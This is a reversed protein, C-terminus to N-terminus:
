IVRRAGVYRTKYYGTSLSTIKVGDSPNSAHIFNDGGVYIGVHGIATNADNNFLVLDGVQLNNRDVAVGNKIQDKSSRNLTIGFHKYVYQTFGSCDFGKSPSAGGSVYKYGLYQKAYEVVAAGTTGTTTETEPKAEPVPEAKEPTVPKQEVVPSEEQKPETVTPTNELSSGDRSTTEPLKTDSIYKSSVYGVKGKLDIQYWNGSQGTIKVEDNKKLSDLEETDTSPGKRVRLGEASVYGIKSLPTVINTNEPEESKNTDEVPEEPQKTVEPEPEPEPEVDQEPQQEPIQVEAELCLVINKLINKRIWGDEIDTEIRCWNNIIEIVKINGSIKSKEISNILPVAKLTVEQQLTYEKNEEINNIVVPTTEIPQEDPQQEIPQEVPQQEPEPNEVKEDEIEPQTSTETTEEENSKVEDKVDLLSESIYGTIKGQETKVKVKYWGDEQELIEVKDGKDLQDLITSKTNPEKRLRVTESNITGTTAEVKTGAIIFFFIMLVIITSKKLKKM